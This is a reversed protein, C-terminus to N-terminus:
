QIRLLFTFRSMFVSFLAILSLISCIVLNTEMTINSTRRRDLSIYQRSKKKSFFQQEATTLNWNFSYWIHNPLNKHHFITKLKSTAPFKQSNESDNFYVCFFFDIELLHELLNLFIKMYIEIDCKLELNKM